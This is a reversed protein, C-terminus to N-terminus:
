QTYEVQKSKQLGTTSDLSQGYSVLYDLKNQRDFELDDQSVNGGIKLYAGAKGMGVLSNLGTLFILSQFDSLCESVIQFHDWRNVVTNLQRTTLEVLGKAKISENREVARQKSRYALCYTFYYNYDMEGRRLRYVKLKSRAGDQMDAVDDFQGECVLSWSVIEPLLDLGVSMVYGDDCNLVPTIYTGSKTKYTFCVFDIQEKPILRVTKDKIRTTIPQPAKKKDKSDIGLCSKLILYDFMKNLM